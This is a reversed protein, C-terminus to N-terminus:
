NLAFSLMAMRKKCMFKSSSKLFGVRKKLQTTLGENENDVHLHEKWTLKNNVIVGLLKHSKLEEIIDEDVVIAIKNKLRTRKVKETGM